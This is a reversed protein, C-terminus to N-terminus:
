FHQGSTTEGMHRAVRRRPMAKAVAKRPLAAAILIVMASPLLLFRLLLPIFPDIHKTKKDQYIIEDLEDTM